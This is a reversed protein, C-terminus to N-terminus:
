DPREAMRAVLEAVSRREERYMEALARPFEVPDDPGAARLADDLYGTVVGEHEPYTGSAAGYQEGDGESFHGLSCSLHLRAGDLEATLQVVDRETPSPGIDTVTFRGDAHFYVQGDEFSGGDLLEEVDPVQGHDAAIALLM